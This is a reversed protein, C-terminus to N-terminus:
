GSCPSRGRGSGNRGTEAQRANGAVPGPAEVIGVHGLRVADLAVHLQLGRGVEAGLVEVALSAALDVVVEEDAGVGAQGGDQAVLLDGLSCALNKLSLFTRTSM